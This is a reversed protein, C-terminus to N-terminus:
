RRRSEIASLYIEGMRQASARRSFRHRIFHEGASALRRRLTRDEILRRLAAALGATDSREVLLGTVGDEILEPNGGVRSAIAPCGCAMAEMLSNSLAEELSPLVFIDFIRLWLPIEPTAPQWVCHDFVGGDCARAQIRDLEPGSGVIALKMSPPVNLRSAHVDAFADILTTLGKEPGLRCVTGIM